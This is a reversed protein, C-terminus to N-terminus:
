GPMPLHLFVRTEQGKVSLLGDLVALGYTAPIWIAKWGCDHSHSQNPFEGFGDIPNVQTTM